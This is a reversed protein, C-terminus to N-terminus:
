FFKKLRLYDFLSIIKVRQVEKGVITSAQKTSRISHKRKIVKIGKDTYLMYYNM